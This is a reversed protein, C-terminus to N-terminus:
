QVRKRYEEISTIKKYNFKPAYYHTIDEGTFYDPTTYSIINKMPEYRDMLRQFPHKRPIPINNQMYFLLENVAINYRKNTDSCVLAKSSFEQLVDKIDAPIEDNQLGEHNAYEKDFWRGGFSEM